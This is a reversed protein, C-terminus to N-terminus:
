LKGIYSDLDARKVRWARGIIKAKLKGGDIAERLIGRSLGTLNHAEALTLLPKAGLDAISPQARTHNDARTFGLAELTTILRETQPPV